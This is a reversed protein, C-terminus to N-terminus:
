LITKTLWSVCAPRPPCHPNPLCFTSVLFRIRTPASPYGSPQRAWGLPVHWVHFAIRTQVYCGSALDPSCSSRRTRMLVAYAESSLTRANFTALNLNWHRGTRIWLNKSDRSGEAANCIQGGGHDTSDCIWFMGYKSMVMQIAYDNSDAPYGLVCERKAPRVARYEFGIKADSFVHIPDDLFRRCAEETGFTVESKGLGFNHVNKLESLTFRQVLEKCIDASGVGQFLRGFFVRPRVHAVM